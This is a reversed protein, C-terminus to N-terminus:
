LIDTWNRQLNDVGGSATSQPAEPQVYVNSGDPFPMGGSSEIGSRDLLEQANKAAADGESYVSWYVIGAAILLLLSLGGPLLIINNRRDKFPLQSLFRLWIGSVKENKMLSYNKRNM